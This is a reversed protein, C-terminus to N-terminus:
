NKKSNQEDSSRRALERFYRQVMARYEEPVGEAEAQRIQNKLSGPLRTWQASSIGYEKLKQELDNDM